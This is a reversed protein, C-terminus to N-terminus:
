DDTGIVALADNESTQHSADFVGTEVLGIIEEQNLFPEMDSRYGDSPLDTAPAPGATDDAMESPPLVSYGDDHEVTRAVETPGVLHEHAREGPRRGIEEIEIREPPTGTPAYQDIMAEALDGLRFREIRPVHIRGGPQDAVRDAIFAAARTKSMAFRTMEPDTVPVPGGSEIRERFLPVVSGSSDVVNGLRVCGLRPGDPGARGAAAHTIREALMKSAGMTSTPTVAKDTSLTLVSEVGVRKATQIVNWTGDANTRIAEYPHSECQPVQKVGATHVVYEAERMAAELRQEDRVNGLEFELEPFADSTRQELTFLGQEDNDFVTIRETDDQELLHAVVASGISGCGGTILVRGGPSM